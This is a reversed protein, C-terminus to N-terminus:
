LGLLGSAHAGAVPQLGGRPVPRRPRAKTQMLPRIQVPTGGRGDPLREFTKLVSPPIRKFAFANRREILAVYDGDIVRLKEMAVPPFMLREGQMRAPVSTRVPECALLIEKQVKVCLQAGPVDFYDRVAKPLCVGGDLVRGVFATITVERRMLERMNQAM